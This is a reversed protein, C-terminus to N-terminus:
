SYLVSKMARYLFEEKTILEHNWFDEFYSADDWGDAFIIIMGTDASFEKYWADSTKRKPTPAPQPDNLNVIEWRSGSPDTGDAIQRVEFQAYNWPENFKHKPVEGFDKPDLARGAYQIAAIFKGADHATRFRPSVDQPM